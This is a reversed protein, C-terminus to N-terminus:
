ATTTESVVRPSSPQFRTAPSSHAFCPAIATVYAPFTSSASGSNRARKGRWAHKTARGSSAVRSNTAFTCASARASSSSGYASKKQPIRM